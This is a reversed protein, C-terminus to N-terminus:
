AGPAVYGRRTKQRLVSGAMRAAEDEAPFWTERSQGGTGIRGWHRIVAVDGFLGPQVALEYFRAMNRSPDIRRLIHAPM